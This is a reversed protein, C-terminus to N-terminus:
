NVLRHSIEARYSILTNVLDIGFPLSCVAYHLVSKVLGFYAYRIFLFCAWFYIGQLVKPDPNHDDTDERNSKFLKSGFLNELSKVADVLFYTLLFEILYVTYQNLALESAM